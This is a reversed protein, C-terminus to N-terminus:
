RQRRRQTAVMLVSQMRKQSAFIGAKSSSLTKEPQVEQRSSAREGKNKTATVDHQGKLNVMKQTKTMTKANM